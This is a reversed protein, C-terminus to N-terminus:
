KTDSARLDEILDFFYTIALLDAAGGPSLRRKIFEDDLEEVSQMNTFEALLRSASEKAFVAGDLGGRHYINTDDISSILSLLALVGADNSSLGDGMASKYVPLSHKFVSSFGSAVEGRIGTLGHNLFLREGATTGGANELDARVSEEVLAKVESIIVAEECIPREPTWTRGIAGLLVGLSYILGKHTNVGDTHTYMTKEAQLGAERLINFAESHALKKTHIGINVCETFYIELASASKRFTGVDMDSHSGNNRLDVLGPKPTTEVELILSRTALAGIQKSDINAFHDRIINNTVSVIEEVPHLRGASCERGPKGCVICSRQNKRELKEGSPTLVDMDFLRGIPSVEEIDVCLSKVKEAALDLAIIAFCGCHDSHVEKFLIKESPLRAFLESLGYEFAREILPTNKVPGAINMTFSLLTSHYESLIRSQMECRKDRAALVETLTVERVNSINKDM